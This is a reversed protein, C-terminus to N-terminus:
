HKQAPTYLWVKVWQCWSLNIISAPSAASLQQKKGGCSHRCMQNNVKDHTMVPESFHCPPSHPHPSFVDESEWMQLFPILLLWILSISECSTTQPRYVPFNMWHQLLPSAKFFFFFRFASLVLSRRSRHLDRRHQTMNIEAASCISIAAASQQEIISLQERGESNRQAQLSKQSPCISTFWQCLHTDEGRWSDHGSLQVSCLARLLPRSHDTQTPTPTTTPHWHNPTFIHRTAQTHRVTM